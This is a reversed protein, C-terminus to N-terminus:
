SGGTRLGAAERVAAIVREVEDPRLGPGLPLSLCSAAWADSAPVDAHVRGAYAGARHPPFPYHILTEIGRARLEAQLEDRRPHRLVFLHWASVARGDIVPLTVDSGQLGELYAGAQETRRANWAALYPLKASLVAAQIEDLRSNVGVVDHRYRQASGYNRLKRLREALQDDNTTVAGGDGLAGLNKSPYFSFAAAHGLSGAPRGTWTAGHAQAADEVVTLGHRSAVHDLASMDAPQGYLHVPVMAATRPTVAAAAAEADLLGTSPDVDVAVVTAGAAEVALWTAIFTHGPVLVEDGPGVGAAILALTIADLGNGVGIAHTTGCARAWSAEFQELEPGLVFYGSAVVRQVAMEIAGAADAHASKLDYFAVPTV